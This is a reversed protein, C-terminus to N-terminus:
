SNPGYGREDNAPEELDNDFKFIDEDITVDFIALFCVIAPLWGALLFVITSLIAIYAMRFWRFKFNFDLMCRNIDYVHLDVKTRIKKGNM